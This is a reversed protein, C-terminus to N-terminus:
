FLPPHHSTETYSERCVFVERKERRLRRLPPLYHSSIVITIYRLSKSHSWFYIPWKREISTHLYFNQLQAFTLLTPTRVVNVGLMGLRSYNLFFPNQLSLSGKANSDMVGTNEVVYIDSAPWGATIYSVVVQQLLRWNRTFGIFLPTNEEAHKSPPTNWSPIPPLDSSSHAAAALPFNDIIAPTTISPEPKYKPYTPTTPAPKATSPAEQKLTSSTPYSRLYHATFALFLLSILSFVIYRNRLSIM